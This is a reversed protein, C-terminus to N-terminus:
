YLAKVRYGRRELLALIGEKGPLHLAGVAVFVRGRALVPLMRETMRHNREVILQRNMREVLAPPQDAMSAESLRVMGALDRQLYLAILEDLTAQIEELNDVTSQLMEKQEQLSMEEFVSMQEAATELGSVKKGMQLAQDHLVRDLFYGTKTKPMMLTTAVAWPKMMRLVPEPIGFGAMAQATRRFLSEGLLTQLDSGDTLFLSTSLSLMTEAGLELELMLHQAGEFADAVAPPLRTVRADESHVTGFLYDPEGGKASHIEWLLGHRYPDQAAAISATMLSLLFILLTALWSPAQRYFDSRM